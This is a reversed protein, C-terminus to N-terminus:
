EPARIEEDKTNNVIFTALELWAVRLELEIQEREDPPQAGKMEDARVAAVHKKILYRLRSAEKKTLM